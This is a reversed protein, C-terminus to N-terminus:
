FEYGELFAGTPLKDNEIASAVGAKFYYREKNTQFYFPTKFCPPNRRNQCRNIIQPAIYSAPFRGQPMAMKGAKAM